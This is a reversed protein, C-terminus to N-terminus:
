KVYMTKLEWERVRIKLLEELLVRDIGWVPLISFSDGVSSKDNELISAKKVVEEVWEQCFDDIQCEAVKETRYPSGSLMGKSDFWQNIAVIEKGNWTFIVGEFREMLNRLERM